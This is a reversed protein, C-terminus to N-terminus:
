GITKCKALEKDLDINLASNFEVDRSVHVARPAIVLIQIQQKSKIHRLHIWINDGIRIAEGNRVTIGLHGFDHTKM